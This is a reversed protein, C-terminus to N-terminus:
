PSLGLAGADIPNENIDFQVNGDYAGNDTVFLGPLRFGNAFDSTLSNLKTSTAGTVYPIGLLGAGDKTPHNNMDYASLYGVWKRTNVLATSVPSSTGMFAICKPGLLSISAAFNGLTHGFNVEYFGAAVRTSASVAVMATTVGGSSDTLESAWQYVNNSYADTTVKLWDLANPNTVPNHQATTSDATVYFAVNPNDFVADPVYLQQVQIGALLDLAERLAVYFQRKTLGLGDVPATLTPVPQTLTGTLVAAATVTVATALTPTAGTSLELGANGTAPVSLSIDATDVSANAVNSYVLMGDKWVSLVGAKYWIQYRTGADSTVDNFTINFGPTATGTTTDLGVGNLVMPKTGCRFALINDSNTACEEIGRELSGSFGFEKAALARDTV